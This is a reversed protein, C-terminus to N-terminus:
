TVRVSSPATSDTSGARFHRYLVPPKENRSYITGACVCRCDAGLERVGGGRNASLDATRRFKIENQYREFRHVMTDNSQDIWEVIDILEHKAKEVVKDWKGNRNRWHQIGSERGCAARFHPPCVQVGASHYVAFRAIDFWFLAARKPGYRAAHIELCNIRCSETPHLPMFSVGVSVSFVTRRRGARV